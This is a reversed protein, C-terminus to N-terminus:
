IEVKDGTINPIKIILSMGDTVWRWQVPIGANIKVLTGPKVITKDQSVYETVEQTGSITYVYEDVNRHFHMKDFDGKKGEKIAVEFSNNKIPVGDFAGVIWGKTVSLDIEKVELM